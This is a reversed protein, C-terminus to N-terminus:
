ACRPSQLTSAARALRTDAHQGSSPRCSSPCTASCRSQDLNPEHQSHVRMAGLCLVAHLHALRQAVHSTWIQSTSVTCACPEWVFSPMFIPLDGPLTVPRCNARASHARAHSGSLPRCSSPCTAPCRAPAAAAAPPTRPSVGHAEVEELLDDKALDPQEAM